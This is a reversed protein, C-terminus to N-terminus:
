IDQIGNIKFAAVFKFNQAFVLRAEAVKGEGNSKISGHIISLGGHVYNGVIGVHQPDNEIAVVVIDGPQMKNQPILTCHQQVISLIARGDGIRSYELYDYDTSVFGLERGM